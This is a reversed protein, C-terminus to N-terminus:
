RREARSGVLGAGGESRARGTAECCSRLIEINRKDPGEGDFGPVELIWAKDHLRKETALAQFGKLGIYGEGINEHRDYHSHPPTKSDNIHLAVINELGIKSDLDKLFKKVRAPSYEDIIGAEFAHATDICVKVRQSGVKKLLYGLQEPTAGLKSGGGASNEMILLTKGPVNKLVEKMGSVTGHLAEELNEGKNSGMHFILGAAGILDAIKLHDSLSQISKARLAAEPSALNVLYAAHLFVPGVKHEEMQKKFLLAESKSPFKVQWQQPSAGFIQICEAGIRGANEIAKHLGGGTRVHAGIRPRSSKKIM